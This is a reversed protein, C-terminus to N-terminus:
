LLTFTKKRIDENVGFYNMFTYRNLGEVVEFQKPNYNDFFTIPVGMYGYYDKPIDKIKNVNIINPLEDFTEYDTEVYKKYSSDAANIGIKELALLQYHRKLLFTLGNKTVAIEKNKKM